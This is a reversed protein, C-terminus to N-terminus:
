EDCAIINCQDKLISKLHNVSKNGVNNHIYWDSVQLQLFKGLTNYGNKHIYRLFNIARAGKGLYGRDVDFDIPDFFEMLDQNLDILPKQESKVQLDLSQQTPKNGTPIKNAITRIEAPADMLYGRLMCKEELTIM